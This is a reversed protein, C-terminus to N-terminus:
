FVFIGGLYGDVLITEWDWNRSIRKSFRDAIDLNARTEVLCVLLPKYTRILHFVRSSTDRALIGRCNWCIINTRGMSFSLFFFSLDSVGQVLTMVLDPLFAQVLM